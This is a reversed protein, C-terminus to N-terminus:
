HRKFKELKVKYLEIKTEMRRLRREDYESGVRIRSLGEELINIKNRLEGIEPNESKLEKHAWALRDFLQKIGILNLSDSM